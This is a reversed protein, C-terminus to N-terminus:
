KVAESFATEKAITVNRVKAAKRPTSAKGALTKPFNIRHVIVGGIRDAIAGRLTDATHIDRKRIGCAPTVCYKDIRSLTSHNKM